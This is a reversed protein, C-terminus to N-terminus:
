AVYGLRLHANTGFQMSVTPGNETRGNTDANPYYPTKFITTKYQTQSTAPYTFTLKQGNISMTIGQNYPTLSSLQGSGIGLIWGDKVIQTTQQPFIVESTTLLGFDVTGSVYQRIGTTIDFHTYKYTRTSEYAPIYNDWFDCYLINEISVPLDFTITKGDSSLYSYDFSNVFVPERIISSKVQVSM